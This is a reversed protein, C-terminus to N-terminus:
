SKNDNNDSNHHNRGKKERKLGDFEILRRESVCTNPAAAVPPRPFLFTFLQARYAGWSSFFGAASVNGRRTPAVILCPPLLLIFVCMGDEAEEDEAKEERDGKAATIFGRQGAM